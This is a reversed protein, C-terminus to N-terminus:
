QVQHIPDTTREDAFVTVDGCGEAAFQLRVADSTQKRLIVVRRAKRHSQAPKSTNQFHVVHMARGDQMWARDDYRCAKGGCVVLSGAFVEEISNNAAVVGHDPETYSDAGAMVSEEVVGGGTATEARRE